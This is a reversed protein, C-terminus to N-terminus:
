KTAVASNAQHQQLIPELPPLTRNWFVVARQLDAKVNVYLVIDEIDEGQQTLVAEVPDHLAGSVRLPIVMSLGERGDASPSEKRVLAAAKAYVETDEQSAWAAELLVEDIAGLKKWRLWDELSSNRLGIRYKYWGAYGVAAVRAAPRVRKFASALDGVLFTMHSLRWAAWRKPVDVDEPAPNLAADIPGLSEDAMFAERAADSYGLLSGIPFRCELVIGSIAPYRRGAESVQRELIAQVMRNFPSAYEGDAPVGCSGDSSKEALDPRQTLLGGKGGAAERGWRLCNLYLYTRIGKSTAATVIAHLPDAKGVYREMPPFPDGPATVLSRGDSLASIILRDINMGLIVKVTAADTIDIDTPDVWLTRGVHSMPPAAAGECCGARVSVLVLCFWAEPLILGVRRLNDM